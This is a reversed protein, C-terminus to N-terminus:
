CDVNFMCIRKNEHESFILLNLQRIAGHIPQWDANPQYQFSHFYHLSTVEDTKHVENGLAGEADGNDGVGGEWVKPGVPFIITWSLQSPM